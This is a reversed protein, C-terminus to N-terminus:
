SAWRIPSWVQLESVSTTYLLSLRLCLALLPASSLPASGGRFGGGSGPLLLYLPDALMPERAWSSLYIDRKSNVRSVGASLGFPPLFDIPLWKISRDRGGDRQAPHFHMGCTTHACVCMCVCPRIEAIEACLFVASLDASGVDGLLSKLPCLDLHYFYHTECKQISM